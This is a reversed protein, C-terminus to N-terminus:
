RNDLDYQVAAMAKRRQEELAAPVTMERWEKASKELWMTAAKQQGIHVYLSGM